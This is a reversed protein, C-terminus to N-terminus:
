GWAVGQCTFTYSANANADTVVWKLRLRDGMAADVSTNASLGADALAFLGSDSDAGEALGYQGAVPVSATGAREPFRCLDRWSTGGDYSTQLYVALNDGADTAAATLLLEVIFSRCMERAGDGRAFGLDDPGIVDSTGSATVVMPSTGLLEFQLLRQYAM